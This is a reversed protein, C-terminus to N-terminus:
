GLEMGTVRPGHPLGPLSPWTFLMVPVRWKTRDALLAGLNWLAGGYDPDVALAERYKEIALEDQGQNKLIVGQNVLWVVNEREGAGAVGAREALTADFLDRRDASNMEPGGLWGADEMRIMVTTLINEFIRPPAFFYTPGLERLDQMVTASSESPSRTVPPAM